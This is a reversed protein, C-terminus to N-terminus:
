YSNCAKTAKVLKKDAENDEKWTSSGTREALHDWTHDVHSKFQKPTERNFVVVTLEVKNPLTIKMTCEVLPNQITYKKPINLIPPKNQWPNRECEYLKLGNPVAKSTSMRQIVAGLPMNIFITKFVRKPASNVPMPSTFSETKQYILGGITLQTTQSIQWNLILRNHFKDIAFVDKTSGSFDRTSQFFRDKIVLFDTM